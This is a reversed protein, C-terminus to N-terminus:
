FYFIVRWTGKYLDEIKINQFINKGEISKLRTLINLLTDVTYEGATVDLYTDVASWEEIININDLQVNLGAKELFKKMDQKTLGEFILVPAKALGGVTVYDAHPFGHVAREVGTAKSLRSRAEPSLQQYIDYPMSEAMQKLMKEDTTTMVAKEIAQIDVM